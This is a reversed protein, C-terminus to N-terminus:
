QRTTVAAKRRRRLAATALSGLAMLSLTGPEPVPTSDVANISLTLSYSTGGCYPGFSPGGPECAVDPYLTGMVDPIDDWSFGFTEKAENGSYVLALTYDGARTLVLPGAPDELRLAAEANVGPEIDDSVAYTQVGSRNPYQYLETGFYLALYPDFGGSALSDTIASFNYEGGDLTFQFLAVDNLTQFEGAFTLSGGPTVQIPAAYGVAPLLAVTAFTLAVGISRIPTPVRKSM